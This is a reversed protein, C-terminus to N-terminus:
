MKASSLKKKVDRRYIYLLQTIALYRLTRNLMAFRIHLSRILTSFSISIQVAIIKEFCSSAFNSTIDITELSNSNLLSYYSSYSVVVTLLSLIICVANIQWLRHFEKKYEFRIGISEVQLLYLTHMSNTFFYKLTSSLSM